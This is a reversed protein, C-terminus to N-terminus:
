KKDWDLKWECVRANRTMCIDHLVRANRVGTMSGLGEMWGTLRACNAAESPYGAVRVRASFDSEEVVTLSGHSHVTSWLTSSKKLIAAPTLLFTFFRYIGVAARLEAKGARRGFQDLSEGKAQAAEITLRNLLFESVRQTALIVPQKIVAQDTAPLSAVARQYQDPTLDTQVFELLAHLVAGKITAQEPPLAASAM